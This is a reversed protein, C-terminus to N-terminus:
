SINFDYYDFLRWNSKIRKLTGSISIPLWERHADIAKIYDDRDLEVFVNYVKGMTDDQWKVIVSRSTDLGLPNDSAKLQTILGKIIVSAPELESLIEAAYELNEYSYQELIIPEPNKITEDIPEVCSSWSISYELPQKKGMSMELISRCMNANFGQKYNDVLVQYNHDETAKRTILFGRVIREMVRRQIPMYNVDDVNEPLLSRQTAFQLRSIAPTEVTFGFSGRFTHGFRYDLIMKQALPMRANLYYSKQNEESCASYAVLQKLENIQHSAIKIPISDLGNTELNRVRLVDRDFYKIKQALDEPNMDLVASLTRIAREVYLDVDVKNKDAPLILELPEASINSAGYYVLWKNTSSLIWQNSELFGILDDYEFIRLLNSSPSINM